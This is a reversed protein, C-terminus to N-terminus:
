SAAGRDVAVGHGGRQRAGVAHHGCEDAVGFWGGYLALYTRDEVTFAMDPREAPPAWNLWLLHAPPAPMTDAIRLVHPLLEEVSAHTWLNDVVWNADPYHQM